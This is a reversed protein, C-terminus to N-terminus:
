MARQLWKNDFRTFCKDWFDAQQKDALEPTYCKWGRQKAYDQIPALQQEAKLTSTPSATLVVPARLADCRMALLIGLPPCSRYLEDGERLMARYDLMDDTKLGLETMDGSPLLDADPWLCEIVAGYLRPSGDNPDEIVNPGLERLGEVVDTTYIPSVDKQRRFYGQASSMVMIDHDAVFVRKM